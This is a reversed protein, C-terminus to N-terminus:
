DSTQLSEINAATGVEVSPNGEADFIVQVFSDLGTQPTGPFSLVPVLATGDLIGNRDLCNGHREFYSREELAVILSSRWADTGCLRQLKDADTDTKSVDDKCEVLALHGDRCFVLDNIISNANKRLSHTADPEKIEIRPLDTGRPPDGGLATWGAQRFLQKTWLYVREESISM